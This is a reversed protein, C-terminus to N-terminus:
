TNEGLPFKVEFRAGGLKGSAGVVLDAEHAFLIDRTITLGLGMGNPKTTFGPEFIRAKVEDNMGPGSDSVILILGTDLVEAIIEIRPSRGGQRCWYIANDLLNSVVALLDGSDLNVRMGEPIYQDVNISYHKIEEDRMEIAMSVCNALDSDTKRTRASAIFFPSFRQIVRQISRVASQGRQLLLTAKDDSILKEFRKIVDNLVPLSRGIEHVLLGVLQGVVALRGLHALRYEIGQRAEELRSSEQQAVELVRDLEAKIEATHPRTGDALLKREAERLANQTEKNNLHKQPQTRAQGMKPKDIRRKKELIQLVSMLAERFQRSAANDILGERDSKDVLTANSIRSVRASAVIQSLGLFKSPNNVRRAELGLWDRDELRKPVALFGDRYVYFGNAGDLTQRIESPTQPSRLASKLRKSYEELIIPDRDWARIEFEFPGCHTVDIKETIKENAQKNGEHFLYTAVIEGDSSVSGSLRYHPYALIESARIESKFPNPGEAELILKFGMEGAFPNEIRSLANEIEKVDDAEPGDIRWGRRLESIRICTGKKDIGLQAMDKPTIAKVEIKYDSLKHCRAVKDWNVEFQLGDGQEQHTSMELKNGLRGASLRGIGKEGTVIRGYKSKPNQAKHSTAVILWKNEIDSISMGNGNDIIRIAETEGLLNTEFVVRVLKADADYANKVLEEFAVRDDRVLHEGLALLARPEVDFSLQTNKM